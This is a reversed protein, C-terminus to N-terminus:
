LVPLKRYQEEQPSSIFRSSRESISIPDVSSIKALMSASRAADTSATGSIGASGSAAVSGSIGASGSGAGSGSTGASGSTSVATTM